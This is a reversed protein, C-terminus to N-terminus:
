KRGCDGEKNRYLKSLFQFGGTSNLEVGALCKNAIWIIDPHWMNISAYDQNEIRHAQKYFAIRRKADVEMTAKEIIRDFEPNQYSTRNGGKPPTNQSFYVYKLMQPGSFGVWQSMVLDFRGSKFSAMFTGWEQITMTMKIGAKELFSKIVEVTEISSKNNSVKWELELAVGDKVLVGKANKVYGAAKLLEHAAIPDYKEIPDNEYMDVFSPSFMGNSLTATNKLKYKLLQERPILLSIAKRVRVDRLPTRQHNLGIFLYNAGETQWITLQDNKQRLWQIKRPSMSATSLDVEGKLLKLALTTEDKVVKFILTPKQHDSPVLVVELPSVSKLNYDGAGVLDGPELNNKIPKKIKLIKLLSLNSLNELSFNKYFFTLELDNKVEVKEVLEFDGKFNSNIKEDHAYYEFSNLVDQATLRSGDSFTLDHRLKFSIKEVGNEVTDNFSQCARCQVQM